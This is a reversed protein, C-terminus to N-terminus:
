LKFIVWSWHRIEYSARIKEILVATETHSKINECCHIHWKQDELNHCLTTKYSVFNKWLVGHSRDQLHLHYTKGLIKKLFKCALMADYFLISCEVNTNQTEKNWDFKIRCLAVCLTSSGRHGSHLLFNERMALKFACTISCSFSSLRNQESHPSSNLM